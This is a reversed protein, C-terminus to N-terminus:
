TSPASSATWRWAETTRGAASSLLCSTLRSPPSLSLLQRALCRLAQQGKLRFEDRSSKRGGETMAKMPLNAGDFIMVPTVRGPLSETQRLAAPHVIYGKSLSETASSCKSEISATTSTGADVHGLVSARWCQMLLPSLVFKDTPAGTCLEM